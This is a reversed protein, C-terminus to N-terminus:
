LTIIRCQTFDIVKNHLSIMFFNNDCNVGITIKRRIQKKSSKLKEFLCIVIDAVGLKWARCPYGHDHCYIFHSLSLTALTFFVYLM